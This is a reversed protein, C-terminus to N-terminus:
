AGAQHRQTAWSYLLDTLVRFPEHQVANYHYESTHDRYGICCEAGGRATNAIEVVGGRVM